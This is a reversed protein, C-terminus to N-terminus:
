PKPQISGAASLKQKNQDDWVRLGHSGRGSRPTETVYIVMAPTLSEYSPDARM